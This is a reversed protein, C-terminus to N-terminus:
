ENTPHDGKECQDIIDEVDDGAAEWGGDPPAIKFSWDVEWQREGPHGSTDFRIGRWGLERCKQRVTNAEVQNSVTFVIIVWKERPLQDSPDVSDSKSPKIEVGIGWGRLEEAADLTLRYAELIDTVMSM